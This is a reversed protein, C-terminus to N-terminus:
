TECRGGIEEVDGVLELAALAQRQVVPQAQKLRGVEQGDAPHGIALALPPMARAGIEIVVQPELRRVDAFRRTQEARERAQPRVVGARMRHRQLLDEGLKPLTRVFREGFDVDDVAEM